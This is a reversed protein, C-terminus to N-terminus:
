RDLEAYIEELAAILSKWPLKEARRASRQSLECRLSADTVLTDIRAALAAPEPAALLGDDGVTDSIGPVHTAVIPLAAAMAELVVLPMGERDSALVFGDAWRYWSVLDAGFARGTFHVNDLGLRRRLEELQHRQEGDGVITLEVPSSVLAIAELLRAVNKQPSLRGVSLLRFPGVHTPETRPSAFFSDDVGNPLVRIRDRRVRYREAVFEAQNPSLVIVRAAARLVGGLVHRKYAQFLPGFRGSPEVDLHFHAVFPRRRLASAAWVVEPVYAQAIHVHTIAAGPARLLHLILGPTFPLHAAEITRLRRVVLRGRRETRPHDGADVTSTLVEVARHDALREAITRAVNEMGGIHPPYYPVVQIVPRHVQGAAPNPVTALEGNTVYSVGAHGGIHALVRELRDWDDHQDIEWSHGWLHYVGGKAMTRDFLAIALAAWDRYRALAKGPRGSIRAVSWVDRLHRYAHVTTAMRLPDAPATTAYREVTRAVVFGARRVEEVHGAVFRGGPYCFSRLPRGLITELEEKGERIESAAEAPQLETLRRHTLTHGGIEFRDGLRRIAGPALREQPRLEVSRPAVYFTAALGYRDLMAALREDLVHGDDWSTTVYASPRVPAGNM